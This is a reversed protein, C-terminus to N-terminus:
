CEHQSEFAGSIWWRMQGKQDSAHYWLVWGCEASATGVLAIILALLGILAKMAAGETTGKARDAMNALCLM